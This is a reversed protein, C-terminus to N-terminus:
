HLRYTGVDPVFTTAAFCASTLVGVDGLPWAATFSVPRNAPVVMRGNTSGHADLYVHTRCAIPEQKAAVYTPAPSSEIWLTAVGSGDDVADVHVTPPVCGALLSMALLSAAAPRVKM